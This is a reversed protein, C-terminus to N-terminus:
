EDEDEVYDEDQPIDEFNQFTNHNSTQPTSKITLENSKEQIV